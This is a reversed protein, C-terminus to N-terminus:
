LCHTVLGAKGGQCTHEGIVLIIQTDSYKEVHERISDIYAKYKEVGGDDIAYEGNSALAACDRDPLDYVVFIGAVPPSAGDDNQSKIDELFEGMTPVKDATDLWHFSPIDAVASAQEALSGTMSPIALSEVESKYYPNVYQQVGEFPNGDAPSGTPTPSSSPPNSASVTTSAAPLAKVSSFLFPVLAALARMNVTQM